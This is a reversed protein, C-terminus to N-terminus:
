LRNPLKVDLLWSIDRRKVIWYAGFDAPDFAAWTDTAEVLLALSIRQAM